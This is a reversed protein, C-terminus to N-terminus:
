PFHSADIYVFHFTNENFLYLAEHSRKRIITVNFFLKQWLEVAKLQEETSYEVQLNGLEKGYTKGGVAFPDVLFLQVPNLVSHIMKSFDGNFVGLEICRPYQPLFGRVAILFEERTDVKIM